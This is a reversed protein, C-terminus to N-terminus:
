GKTRLKRALSQWSGANYARIGNAKLINVAKGSRVGSACCCIVPVGQSKIEGIRSHLRDLPINKAKQVHGTDYEAGTRVDIIWAGQAILHQYNVSKFLNKFFSFM